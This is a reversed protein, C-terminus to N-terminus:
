SDLEGVLDAIREPQGQLGGEKFVERMEPDSVFGKFSEEDWDVAVYVTNPDEVSRFTRSGKSGHEKRKAAGKTSFVSWFQDFDDVKVKSLIM